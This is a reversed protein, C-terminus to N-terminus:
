VEEIKESCNVLLRSMKERHLRLSEAKAYLRKELENRAAIETDFVDEDIYYVAAIMDEWFEEVKGLAKEVVIEWGSWRDEAIVWRKLGKDM